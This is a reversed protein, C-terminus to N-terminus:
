KKAEKKAPSAEVEPEPQKTHLMNYADLVTKGKVREFDADSVDAGVIPSEGRWAARIQAEKAVALVMQESPPLADSTILELAAARAAEPSEAVVYVDYVIITNYIGLAM